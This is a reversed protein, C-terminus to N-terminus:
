RIPNRYTDKEIEWREMCKVIIDNKEFIFALGHKGDTTSPIITKMTAGNELLFNALRRTRCYFTNERTNTTNEM